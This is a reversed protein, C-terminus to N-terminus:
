GEYKGGKMMDKNNIEDMMPRREEWFVPTFSFSISKNVGL